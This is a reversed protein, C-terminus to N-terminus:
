CKKLSLNEDCQFKNEVSLTDIGTNHKLYIDILFGNDPNTNSEETTKFIKRDSDTMVDYYNDEQGVTNLRYNNVSLDKKSSALSDNKVWGPDRGVEISKVTGCVYKGPGFKNGTTNKNRCDGSSHHSLCNRESLDDEQFDEDPVLSTAEKIIEM